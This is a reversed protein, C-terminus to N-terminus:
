ETKTKTSVINSEISRFDQNLAKVRFYYNTNPTLETVTLITESIEGGTRDWNIGDLSKSVQYLTANPSADWQLRIRKAWREVVRLNAPPSIAKTRVTIPTTFESDGEYENCAKVRFYYLTDPALDSVTLTDATADDTRGSKAWNVNDTSRSVQYYHTYSVKDWKLTVNFLNYGTCRFNTPTIPAPPLTKVTIDISASRYDGRVTKVRFYYVTDATLDSVTLSTGSIPDGYQNWNVNDKSKSVQYTGADPSANWQLTVKYQQVSTAVLNSPPTIAKTHAELAPDTFESYNDEYQGWAQIKFYYKTAPALGSVTFSLTDIDSVKGSDVWNTDDTRRKINYGHAYSVKDWQLNVNFLGTSTCRFNTPTALQEDLTTVEIINSPESRYDGRVTKVRFYYVTDATLDSVTLSTGSIPDGYQDWDDINDKRKSVQYTGADPSANWQLTVKYRQVSTAVLNSPPTIAKTHAELAPDTFESYNDEYQGWAQIKFYYKTAPALGSVTFSLTDIDSVKGSDVWNTGDTSRIINYGHAYSVKDWQLNVNFLGISTCRFNTPTALKDVLTRVEIINSPESRYDGRVTKVRFYYVTDATLDSVTLSTGSIPDGYQNWNVNDKSKSVQYTGADPSANWQLAVKYRQVSTAVLNTPAAPLTRIYVQNSPKSVCYSNAAKVQFYYYTYSKLGSFLFDTNATRYELWNISDESIGVVYESTNLTADWQLSVKNSEIVLTHLNQPVSPLKALWNKSMIGFDLLDVKGDRNINSQSEQTLLWNSALAMLDELDVGPSGAIDGPINCNINCNIIETALCANEVYYKDELSWSLNETAHMLAYYLDTYNAGKSLLNTQVEYMLDAVKSIGM